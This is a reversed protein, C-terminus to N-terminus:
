GWLYREDFPINYRELLTRFEDQFTRTRHHEEQKAIYAKVDDLQSLGISFAGYGSQWGFARSGHGESKVWKSSSHKLERVVDSVCGNRGIDLVIHVHDGVGGVRHVICGQAKGIGALYAHLDPALTDTILHQHDKTSFVIHILISALSQAMRGEKDLGKLATIDHTDDYGPSRGGEADQGQAEV